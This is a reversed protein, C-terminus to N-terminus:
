GHRYGFKPRLQAAYKREVIRSEEDSECIRVRIEIRDINNQGISALMETVARSNARGVAEAWVRGAVGSGNPHRDFCRGVYLCRDNEFHAYVGKKGKLTNWAESSFECFDSLYFTYNWQM